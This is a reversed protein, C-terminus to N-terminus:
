RNLKEFRDKFLEAYRERLGPHKKFVTDLLLSLEALREIFVGDQDKIKKEFFEIREQDSLLQDLQALVTGFKEETSEKMTKIEWSWRHPIFHKDLYEAIELKNYRYGQPSAKMDDHCQRIIEAFSKGSALDFGITDFWSHYYDNPYPVVNFHACIEEDVQRLSVPGMGMDTKRTLSFSNAM